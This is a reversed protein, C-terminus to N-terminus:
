SSKRQKKTKTKLKKAKNFDSRSGKADGNSFRAHGRLNFYNPNEGDLAIAKNFDEIAEAFQSNNFFEVGRASFFDPDEISNEDFNKM